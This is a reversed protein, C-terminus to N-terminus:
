LLEVLGAPKGVMIKEEQFHLLGAKSKRKLESGIVIAAAIFALAVMFGFMNIFRLGKWDAGFWDRVLLYLNPYM